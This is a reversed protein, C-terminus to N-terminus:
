QTLDIVRVIDNQDRNVTQILTSGTSDYYQITAQPAPDSTVVNIATVKIYDPTHQITGWKVTYLTNLTLTALVTDTIIM